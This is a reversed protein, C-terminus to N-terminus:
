KLNFYRIYYFDEDYQPLEKLELETENLRLIEYYNSSIQNLTDFLFYTKIKTQEENDYFWKLTDFYLSMSDPCDDKQIYLNDTQFRHTNNKKCADYLYIYSVDSMLTNDSYYQEVKNLVWTNKTLYENNIKNKKCSTNLLLFLVIIVSSKILLKM